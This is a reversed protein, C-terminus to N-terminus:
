VEGLRAKLRVLEQLLENERRESEEQTARLEEMNQRMEEEQATVEEAQQRSQELLMATQMNYRVISIVSAIIEGVKEVFKIEFPELRKFSALEIVGYVEENLIMPVILLANPSAEGIGSTIRIYDPPLDTMYITEREMVCRGVLGEGINVHKESFKNRNYAYLGTLELFSEKTGTHNMIFLAGQNTETFKVLNSILTYSLKELDNNYQRLIDSFQALGRTTWNRQDDERKRKEEEQAAKRLENRMNLLTKGLVDDKSLPNFTTDFNGKGIEVSFRTMNNLGKVLATLAASMRGIEDNRRQFAKDPLIGLSMNHLTAGISKLPRIINVGLALGTLALLLVLLITWISTEAKFVSFSNGLSTRAINTSQECDAMIRNIDSIIVSRTGEEVQILAAQSTINGEASVPASLILRRQVPYLSDRIIGFLGETKKSEGANWEISVSELGHQLVPISEEHIEKLKTIGEEAPMQQKVVRYILFESEQIQYKLDQLYMRSPMYGYLIRSGETIHDKTKKELAVSYLVVLLILLGFAVAFRTGISLRIKM